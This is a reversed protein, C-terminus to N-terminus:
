KMSPQIQFILVHAEIGRLHTAVDACEAPVAHVHDHELLVVM